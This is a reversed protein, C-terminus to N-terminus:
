KGGKDLKKKISELDVESLTRVIEKAKNNGVKYYEKVLEVYEQKEQKHWKAFRNRKPVANFMFDYHQKASARGYRNIENALFITDPFYSFNQTVLYPVYEKFDAEDEDLKNKNNISKIYDFLGIAM